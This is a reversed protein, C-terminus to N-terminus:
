NRAHVATVAGGTGALNALRRINNGVIRAVEPRSTLAKTLAQQGARTYLLATGGILGAAPVAAPGVVPLHGGLLGTLAAGTLFRGTTGSDPVTSPLVNNMADLLGQHPVKGGAVAAKSKGKVVGQGFGAATFIGDKSSPRAAATEIPKLHAYAKNVKALQDGAAADVRSVLGELGGKVDRLAAAADRQWKTGKSLDNIHATLAEQAAKMEDGTMQGAKTFRSQVETKIIQNVTSKVSPDGLKAVKARAAGLAATWPADRQLTLPALVEDYADSLRQKTYNFADRGVNIEDPLAEGIHALTDNYAARNAGELSRRQANRIVDGAFPVSTLSDELRRTVGGAAQGLTLPVGKQALKLADGTVGSIVKGAGGLLSSGVKGGIAGYVADRAIGAADKNDSLLAGSAAGNLVPGGPIWATSALNGLFQGIKGPKEGAAERQDFYSHAGAAAQRTAPRSDLGPIYDLPNGIGGSIKELAPMVGEMFGLTQSTRQPAAVQPPKAFAAPPVGPPASQAPGPDLEVTIGKGRGIVRPASAPQDALAKVYAQTEPINPVGGARRVAGPGANYAALAKAEDGGFADLQRKLYTVGGTINQYPDSPDVGLEKATGPMLQMLGRAGKPSVANPNGGSERGMVRLALDPNVGLRQAESTAFDHHDWEQAGKVAASEDAADIDVEDGRPTKITFVPM